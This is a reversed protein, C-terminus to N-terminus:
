KMDKGSGGTQPPQPTQEAAGLSALRSEILDLALILGQPWSRGPEFYFPFHETELTRAFDQGLARTVLPPLLVVATRAGPALGVYLTKGDPPPPTLKDASVQVRAELGYTKRLTSIFARVHDREADSLTGTADSFSAQANIREMNRESNKWFALGVLCVVLALAMLRLMHDWPGSARLSFIGM